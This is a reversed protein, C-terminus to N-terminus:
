RSTISYISSLLSSVSILTFISVLAFSICVYVFSIIVFKSDEKENKLKFFFIINGIALLFMLLYYILNSGTPRGFDSNLAQMNPEILVALILALGSHILGLLINFFRVISKM